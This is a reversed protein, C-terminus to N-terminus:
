LDREGKGEGGSRGNLSGRRHARSPAEGDDKKQAENGRTGQKGQGPARVTVPPQGEHREFFVSHM